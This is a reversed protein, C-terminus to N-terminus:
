LAPDSKLDTRVLFIAMYITLILMLDCALAKCLFYDEKLLWLQLLLPHLSASQLWVGAHWSRAAFVYRTVKCTGKPSLLKTSGSRCPLLTDVREQDTRAM